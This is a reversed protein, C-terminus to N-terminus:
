YQKKLIRVRFTMKLFFKHAGTARGRQYRSSHSDPIFAHLGSIQSILFHRSTVHSILVSDPDQDGTIVSNWNHWYSQPLDSFPPEARSLISGFVGIIRHDPIMILRMQLDLPPFYHPWLYLQHLPCHIKNTTQVMDQEFTIIFHSNHTTHTKSMCMHIHTHRTEDCHGQRIHNSFQNPNWLMNPM